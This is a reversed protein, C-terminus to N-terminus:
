RALRAYLSIFLSLSVMKVGDWIAWTTKDYRTKLGKPKKGYESGSSSGESSSSSGESDSPADVMETDSPESLESVADDSELMNVDSDDDAGARAVLIASRAASNSAPAAVSFTAHLVLIWLLSKM